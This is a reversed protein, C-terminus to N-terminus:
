FNWKKKLQGRSNESAREEIGRYNEHGWDMRRGTEEGKDVSYTAAIELKPVSLTKTPVVM